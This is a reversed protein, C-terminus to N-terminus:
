TSAPPCFACIVPQRLLSECTAANWKVARGSEYAARVSRGSWTPTIPTATNRSFIGGGGIAGMGAGIGRWSAGAAPSDAEALGDTLPNEPDRRAAYVGFAVGGAITAAGVLLARRTFRRM